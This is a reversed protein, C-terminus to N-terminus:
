QKKYITVKSQHNRMALPTNPVPVREVTVIYGMNEAINLAAFVHERVFEEEDWVLAAGPEPLPMTTIPM